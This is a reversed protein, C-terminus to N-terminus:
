QASLRDLMVNDNAFAQVFGDASLTEPNHEAPEGAELLLVSGIDAEALRAATICGASGGGVVIYDYQETPQM